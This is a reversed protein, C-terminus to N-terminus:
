RLAPMDAAMPQPSREDAKDVWGRGIAKCIGVVSGFCPAREAALNLAAPFRQQERQLVTFQPAYGRAYQLRALRSYQSLARM